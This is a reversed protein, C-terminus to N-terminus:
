ILSLLLNELGADSLNKWKGNDFFSQGKISIQKPDKDEQEFIGYMSLISKKESETIIIRRNSM